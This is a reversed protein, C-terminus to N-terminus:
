TNTTEVFIRCLWQLFPWNAGGQISWEIGCARRQSCQWSKSISWPRRIPKEAPRGQKNLVGFPMAVVDEARRLTTSLITLSAVPNGRGDLLLELRTPLRQSM